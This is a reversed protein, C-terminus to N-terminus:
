EADKNIRGRIDSVSVFYVPNGEADKWDRSDGSWDRNDGMVFM